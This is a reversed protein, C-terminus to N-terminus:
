YAGKITTEHWRSGEKIVINLPLLVTCFFSPSQYGEKPSTNCIHEFLLTYQKKNIPHFVNEKKSWSNKANM